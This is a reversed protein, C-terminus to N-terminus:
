AWFGFDNDVTFHSHLLSIFEHFIQSVNTTPVFNNCIVGGFLLFLRGSIKLFALTHNNNKFYIVWRYALQRIESAM